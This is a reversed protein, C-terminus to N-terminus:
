IEHKDGVSVNKKVHCQLTSILKVGRACSKQMIVSSEASLRDPRRKAFLSIPLNLDDISECFIIALLLVCMCSGFERRGRRAPSTEFKPQPDHKKGLQLCKLVALLVTDIQITNGAAM